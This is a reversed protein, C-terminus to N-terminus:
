QLQSPSCGPALTLVASVGVPGTHWCSPSATLTALREHCVVRLVSPGPPGTPTSPNPFDRLPTNDQPRAMSM